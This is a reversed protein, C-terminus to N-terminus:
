YRVNNNISKIRVKAPQFKPPPPLSKKADKDKAKGGTHFLLIM